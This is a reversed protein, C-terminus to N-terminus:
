SLDHVRYTVTVEMAADNSANGAFESGLNDLVLAKNVGNTNSVIADIKPLANTITDATQDIFGTSEITQSVQVGSANEYKIALNDGAETLGESGALLELIASCFEIFKNAGPAAVLTKQTAALNKIESATLTVTVQQLVAEQLDDYTISDEPIVSGEQSFTCASEDGTNIYVPHLGDTLNADVFRCGKAFGAEADTPVTNGIAETVNGSSDKSLVTVATSGPTETNGINQLQKVAVKERTFYQTM